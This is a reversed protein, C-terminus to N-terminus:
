RRISGPDRLFTSETWWMGTLDKWAPDDGPACSGSWDWSLHPM